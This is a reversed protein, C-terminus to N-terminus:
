SNQPWPAVGSPPNDVGAQSTIRGDAIAGLVQGLATFTGQVLSGIAVGVTLMEARDLPVISGDRQVWNIVTSPVVSVLQVAASLYTSSVPDTDVNVLVNTAAAVTFGGQAIKTQKANAYAALGTKSNMVYGPLRSTLVEDLNVETDINIPQAGAALWAVYIPDNLPVYANRASSFAGFAIRDGVIWYWNSFDRDGIM